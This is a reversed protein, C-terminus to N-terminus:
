SCILFYIQLTRAGKKKVKYFFLKIVSPFFERVVPALSPARDLMGFIFQNM